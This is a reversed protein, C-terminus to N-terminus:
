SGAGGLLELLRTAREPGVGREEHKFFVFAERWDDRRDRLWQAWEALADGDYDSRRLRLYGWEATVARPPDDGDDTEAICLAAGRARLRELTDEDYWSEHRFEFASRGPNPLADLFADLREADKSFNPPLQYLVAGGRGGLSAASRLFYSVEEEVDALRKFHTIRRSAKLVFRFEPPVQRAWGELVDPRPMRYFTQNIEVANLRQGYYRLMESAALDEPYFSGRWEKYSFGSTGIRLEM